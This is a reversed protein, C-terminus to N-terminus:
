GEAREAAQPMLSSCCSGWAASFKPGHQLRQVQLLPIRGADAREVGAFCQGVGIDTLLGPLTTLGVARLFGYRSDGCAASSTKAATRKHEM